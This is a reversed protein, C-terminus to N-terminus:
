REYVMQSLIYQEREASGQIMDDWIAKACYSAFIWCALKGMKTFRLTNVKFTPNKGPDRLQTISQLNGIILASEYLIDLGEQVPREKVGFEIFINHTTSDDIIDQWKVKLDKFGKKSLEAQIYSVAKEPSLEASLFVPLALLVIFCFGFRM